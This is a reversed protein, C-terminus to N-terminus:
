ALGPTAGAAVLPAGDRSVCHLRAPGPIVLFPPAMTVSISRGEAGSVCCGDVESGQLGSDVPQKRHAVKGFASADCDAWALRGNAPM